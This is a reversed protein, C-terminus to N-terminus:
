TIVVKWESEGFVQRFVIFGNQDVLPSADLFFKKVLEADFRIQLNRRTIECCYAAELLEAPLNMLVGVIQQKTRKEKAM